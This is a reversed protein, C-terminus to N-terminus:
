DVQYLALTLLPTHGTVKELLTWNTIVVGTDPVTLVLVLKELLMQALAAADPVDNDRDPFVPLMWHCFDLLQVAVAGVHVVMTPTVLSVNIVPATVADVAYLATEVTPEQVAGVLANTKVTLGKTMVLVIEPVLETQEPVLVAVRVNALPVTPLMWHCLDDSLVVQVSKPETIEGVKAVFATFVSVCDM